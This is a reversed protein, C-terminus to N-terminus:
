KYRGSVSNVLMGEGSSSSSLRGDPAVCALGQGNPGCITGASADIIKGAALVEATARLGPFYHTHTYGM